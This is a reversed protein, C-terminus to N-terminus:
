QGTGKYGLLVINPKLRGLGGLQLLNIFGEHLTKAEVVDCFARNNAEKGWVGANEYFFSYMDKRAKEVDQMNQRRRVANKREMLNQMLHTRILVSGYVNVGHGMKMMTAFKVLSM